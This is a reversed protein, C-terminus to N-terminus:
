NQLKETLEVHLNNIDQLVIIEDEERKHEALHSILRQVEEVENCVTIAYSIKM